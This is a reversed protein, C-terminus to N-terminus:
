ESEWVCVRGRVCVSERMCVCLCLFRVYLCRMYACMCVRESEWTPSHHPPEWACGGFWARCVGVTVYDWV